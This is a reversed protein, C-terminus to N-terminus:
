IQYKLFIFLEYLIKCDKGLYSPLDLQVHTAM